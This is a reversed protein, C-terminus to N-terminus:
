MVVMTGMKANKAKDGKKRRSKNTLRDRAQRGRHRPSPAEKRKARSGRRRRLKEETATPVGKSDLQIVLVEGDSEPAAAHEFWSPAFRGYGLAGAEIVETSPASPLFWGLIERAESFAMRTALRVAMSLLNPSM